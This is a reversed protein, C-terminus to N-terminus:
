ALLGAALLGIAAIGLAGGGRLLWMSRAIISISALVIAIQLAVSSFEYLHHQHEAHDRQHREEVVEHELEEDVPGYHTVLKEEIAAATDAAHQEAANGSGIARLLAADNEAITTKVDNAELRASVDAAQTEGTIVHKLATEALFTAIALFAALVAVLVAANRILQAYGPDTPEGVLHQSSEFHEISEKAKVSM